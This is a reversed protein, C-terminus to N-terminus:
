KRKRTWGDRTMKGNEYDIYYCGDSILCVSAEKSENLISAEKACKKAARINSFTGGFEGYVAYKDM